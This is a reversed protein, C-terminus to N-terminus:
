LFVSPGMVGLFAALQEPTSYAVSMFGPLLAIMFGWGKPNM